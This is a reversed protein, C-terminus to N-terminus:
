DGFYMYFFLSVSLVVKFQLISCRCAPGLARGAQKGAGLAGGHPWLVLVTRQSRLRDGTFHATKVFKKFVPPWLRGFTASM